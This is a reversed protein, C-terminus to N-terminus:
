GGINWIDWLCVNLIEDRFEESSYDLVGNFRSMYGEIYARAYLNAIAEFVAVQWDDATIDAAKVATIVEDQTNM